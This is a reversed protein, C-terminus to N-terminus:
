LRDLRPGGREGSWAREFARRAAEAAAGNGLRREAEALGYLAWGNNPARALADTFVTRAEEARNRKLLVAGLSQRTPFYWYPPEMYPLGDEITVAARWLREAGALDGTAQARRARAATEALELLTRAPVGGAEMSSFDATDRLRKLEALEAEFAQPFLEGARAVARAYRWSAVAYPLRADPEPQALITRKDSFQAHAFSPAAWIVQVWGLKAATEVDLIERLRRAQDLATRADGAMQASTVIFHVNHPYYAYRYSPASGAAKMWAEDARAAAVNARISDKWRGVRYYVHAPMHVLHGAGPTLPRALRDAYPEAKTPDASAEMLHIYLHAAQPHDPNRALVREVMGIARGIDGKPTVGDAQWYDWPQRNMAAEAALVQVDDDDPFRRAAEAMAADYARDLAARDADPADSYRAAMAEILARERPTAREALARARAAARVARGVADPDMGANINPGLAFAEGWFCMACDPDLEQARRFSRIAGDHNFGYALALGQDFYAQAQANGTSVPFRIAGLGEILPVPRDEASLDPAAVSAALGIRMALVASGNARAGCLGALRLTPDLATLLAESYGSSPAASGCLVACAVSVTAIRFAM